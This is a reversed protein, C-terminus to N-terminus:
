DSTDMKRKAHCESSAFILNSLTWLQINSCRWAMALTTDSKRNHPFSGQTGCQQCSKTNEFDDLLDSSLSFLMLLCAAVNAGAIAAFESSSSPLSPTLWSRFVFADHLPKVCLGPTPCLSATRFRPDSDKPVVHRCSISYVRGRHDCSLANALTISWCMPVHLFRLISRAHLFIEEPEGRLPPDCPAGVKLRMAVEEALRM